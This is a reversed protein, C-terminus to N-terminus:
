PIIRCDFVSTPHGTLIVDKSWTGDVLNRDRGEWKGYCGHLM